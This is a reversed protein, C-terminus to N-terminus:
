HNLNEFRLGLPGKKIFTMAEGNWRYCKTTWNAPDDPGGPADNLFFIADGSQTVDFVIEPFTRSGSELVCSPRNDKWTFVSTHYASGGVWVTVFLADEDGIPYMSLFHDATQIATFHKGRSGIFSLERIPLDDSNTPRQELVECVVTLGKHPWLARAIQSNGRVKVTSCSCSLLTFFLYVVLKM